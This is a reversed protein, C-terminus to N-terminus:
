IGIVPERGHAAEGKVPFLGKWNNLTSQQLVRAPDQGAARLKALEGIALEKARDTMASKSAKRMDVFAEWDERPLWEPLATIHKKREKIEKVEEQTNGSQKGDTYGETDSATERSNGATQYDEYKCITILTGTQTLVTEVSGCKELVKLFNKVRKTSWKWETALTRLSTHFQGRGVSVVEGKHNRRTTEKWAANTLLWCWAARECYPEASFHRSDEWGRHLKIYGSM